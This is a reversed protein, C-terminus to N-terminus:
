NKMYKNINAMKPKYLRRTEDSYMFWSAIISQPPCKVLPKSFVILDNDCPTCRQLYLLNVCRSVHRTRIIRIISFYICYRFQQDIQIGSWLNIPFDWSRHLIWHKPVKSSITDCLIKMFNWPWITCCHLFKDGCIIKWLHDWACGEYMFYYM